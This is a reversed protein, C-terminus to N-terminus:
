SCRGIYKKRCYSYNKWTEGTLSSLQSCGATLRIWSTWSTTPGRPWSKIAASVSWTNRRWFIGATYTWCRGWQRTSDVLQWDSVPGDATQRAASWSILGCGTPCGCVCRGPSSCTRRHQLSIISCVHSPLTGGCRCTIRWCQGEVRTDSSPAASGSTNNRQFPASGPRLSFLRYVCFYTIFSYYCILLKIIFIYIYILVSRTHFSYRLLWQCWGKLPEKSWALHASRRQLHHHFYQSSCM